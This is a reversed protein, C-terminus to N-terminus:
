VRLAMPETYFTPTNNIKAQKDSPLHFQKFAKQSQTSNILTSVELCVFLDTYLLTRKQVM